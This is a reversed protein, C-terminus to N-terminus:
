ATGELSAGKARMVFSRMLAEDKRGPSVEVSSAVDVAFAGTARIASAVNDPTLGGAIMLPRSTMGRAVKVLSWDFTSGGPTDPRGAGDLLIAAAVDDWGPVLELVEPTSIRFAKLVPCRYHWLSDAQEFGHLQVYHLELRTAFRHVFEVPADAFVGVVDVLPPLSHRIDAAVSETICRPSSPVFNLGIADAGARVAAQADEVNTIGCIKVRVM